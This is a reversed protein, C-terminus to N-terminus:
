LCVILLLLSLVLGYFMLLSLILIYQDVLSSEVLTVAFEDNNSFTSDLQVSKRANGYRKGRKKRQVPSVSSSVLLPELATVRSSGRVGRKGKNPRSSVRVSSM